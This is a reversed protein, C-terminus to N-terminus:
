ALSWPRGIGSHEEPDQGVTYFKARYLKGNRRVVSNAYYTVTPDWESPLETAM